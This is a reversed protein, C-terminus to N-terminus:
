KKCNIIHNLIDRQGEKIEKIDNRLQDEVRTIRNALDEDAKNLRKESNKIDEMTATNKIKTQYTWLFGVFVIISTLLSIVFAVNSINLSLNAM